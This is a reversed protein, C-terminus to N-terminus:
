ESQQAIQKFHLDLWLNLGERIASSFTGDKGLVIEVKDILYVPLRVTKTKQAM